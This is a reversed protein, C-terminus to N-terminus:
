DFDVFARATGEIFDVELNTAGNGSGHYVAGEGGQLFLVSATGTNGAFYHPGGYLGVSLCISEGAKIDVGNKPILTWTVGDKSYMSKGALPPYEGTKGDKKYYYYNDYYGDDEYDEMTVQRFTTVGNYKDSTIKFRIESTDGPATLTEVTYKGHMHVAALTFEDSYSSYYTKKGVKKWTRAKYTYVEGPKVTNDHIDDLAKLKKGEPTKLNMKRYQPDSASKRYVQVGSPKVGNYLNVYIYLNHLDNSHFEGYGGNILDPKALGATEYTMDDSSYTTCVLKAKKGKKKYGQVVYAYTKGSKVKKDTYSKKKGSVKAIKKYDSLAPIPKDDMYWDGKVEVRYIKYFSVKTKKPKKWTVKMSKMAPKMYVSFHKVSKSAAFSADARFLDGPLVGAILAVAMLVTLIKCFHKRM